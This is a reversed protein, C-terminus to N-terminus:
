KDEENSEVESSAKDQAEKGESVISGYPNSVVEVGEEKYISDANIEEVAMQIAKQCESPTNGVFVKGGRQNIINILEKQENEDLDFYQAAYRSYKTDLSIFIQTPESATAFRGQKAFDTLNGCAKIFLKARRAREKDDVASIVKYGVIFDEKAKYEPTKVYSLKGLDFSFSGQFLDSESFNSNAIAQSNGESDKGKSKNIRNSLRVLLDTSVQSPKDAVFLTADIVAKRPVSGIGAVPRLFGGLDGRLDKTIDYNVGDGNGVYTGPNEPDQQNLEAISSFLVHKAMQGSFYARGDSLRKISSTNGNPNISGNVAHNHMKFRPTIVISKIM